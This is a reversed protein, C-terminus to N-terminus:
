RESIKNNTYLLAVSNQINIKYGAIHSFDNKLGLLNKKIADKPIEIYLLMGNGKWILNM